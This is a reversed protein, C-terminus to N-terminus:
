LMRRILPNMLEERNGWDGKRPENFGHRKANWGGKPARLKFTSLFNNAQKFNPGVTYIEHILDEVCSIGYKGLSDHIKRNDDLPIRQKNIRGFGRKYVLRAVNSQSVYGYTCYSQIMRLMRITCQNVRVFVGNYMQKLRLLEMIKKPKPPIKNTGALRVVFILKAEPEIFFNGQQHAARRMTILKRQEAQYEKAYKAQNTRALKRLAKNEAKIKKCAATKETLLKSDRSTKKQQAESLVQDKVTIAPNIRFRDAM